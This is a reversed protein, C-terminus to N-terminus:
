MNFEVPLAIVPQSRSLHAGRDAPMRNGALRHPEVVNRAPMYRSEVLLKSLHVQRFEFFLIKWVISIVSFAHRDLIRYDLLQACSIVRFGDRQRPLLVVQKEHVIHQDRVAALGEFSRSFHEYRHSVRVAIKNRSDTKLLRRLCAPLTGAEYASCFRGVPYRAPVLAM